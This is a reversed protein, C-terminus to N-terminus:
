VNNSGFRASLGRRPLAHKEWPDERLRWAPFCCMTCNGSSWNCHADICSRGSCIGYRLQLDLTRCHCNACRFCWRTRDWGKQKLRHLAVAFMWSNIVLSRSHLFNSIKSFFFFFTWSKGPKAWEKAEKLVLSIEKPLYGKLKKTKAGDAFHQYM